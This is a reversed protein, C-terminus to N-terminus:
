AESGIGRPQVPAAPPVDTRILDGDKLRRIYYATRTVEVEAADTIYKRPAGEFPVRVGPAAKVKIPMTVSLANATPNTRTAATAM